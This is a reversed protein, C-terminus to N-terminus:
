LGPLTGVLQAAAFEGFQRPSNQIVWADPTATHAPKGALQFRRAGAQVSPQSADFVEDCAWLTARTRLDVLRMRWGVALPAYGRFVTLRCFLVADCGRVDNLWAFLDAPLAEECSWATQGTKAELAESSIPTIEFRHLKALETSVIPELADRAEVMEQLNQECAMPLLAIRRLNAPLASNWVFVNGPRYSPTLVRSGQQTLACGPVFLLLVALFTSLRREIKQTCQSWSGPQATYSLGSRQDATDGVQLRSAGSAKPHRSSARLRCAALRRYLLGSTQAVDTSLTM